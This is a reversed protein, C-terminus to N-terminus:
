CPPTWDGRRRVQLTIFKGFRSSNENRLTKANGFAELIPNSELVRQEVPVGGSVGSGGSGQHLHRGGGHSGGVAALYAMVLKASETKGAGSEGSILLTQDVCRRGAGGSSSGSGGGGGGLMRAEAAADIMARYAADAVAYVHPPLAGEEGAQSARLVGARFYRGLAAPGYLEPMPRFPNVALLIPGTCTYIHSRKYRAALTHLISPEHLFPLGVLDDCAAAPGAEGGDPLLLHSPRARGDGGVLQGEESAADSLYVAAPESADDANALKVDVLEGTGDGVAATQLVREEGSHRVRVRVAVGAGASAAGCSLVAALAWAHQADRVWVTAGAEM